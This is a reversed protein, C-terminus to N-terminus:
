FKYRLRLYAFVGDGIHIRNRRSDCLFNESEFMQRDFGYGGAAVLKCHEEILDWEIGGYIRQEAYYFQEDKDVRDHRIYRQWEWDYTAFLSFGKVVTYTVDAMARSPLLLGQLALPPTPKYRTWVVPVGLLAQLDKGGIHYGAGPFAYANRGDLQSQATLYLLWGNEDGDPLYVFGTASFATEGATAFPKDGASGITANVGVVENADLRRGYGLGLRIDWLEDPVAGGTDPLVANNHIQLNGVQGTIRWQDDDTEVIPVSFSFEQKAYNMDARQDAIDSEGVYARLRYDVVPRTKILRPDFWSMVAQARAEAASSATVLAAVILIHTLTRMINPLVGAVSSHLGGLRTM